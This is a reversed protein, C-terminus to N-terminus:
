SRPKGKWYQQKEPQPPPLEPAQPTQSDQYGLYMSISIVAVLAWVGVAILALWLRLETETM